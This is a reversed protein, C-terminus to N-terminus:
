ARDSPRRGRLLWVTPWTLFIAALGLAGYGAPRRASASLVPKGGSRKAAPSRVASGATTPVSAPLSSVAFGAAAADGLYHPAPERDGSIRLRLTLPVDGSTFSAVQPHVSVKVYYWGAVAASNVRSDSSLRNDYLVRPTQATIAAAHGAYSLSQGTVYGRAPSFLALDVGDAALGGARTVTTGGFDATVSLRQGWYLPVRYYRTQGAPVRDTYVGTGPLRTGSGDMGPEGAVPVPLGTPPAPDAPAYTPVAPAGPPPAGLAPEVMYRVDLPWVDDSSSATSKREVQLLYTGAAQCVDAAAGPRRVAGGVPATANVGTVDADYSDCLTGGPTMLRLTLGAFLGVTSGPRPVAFASLYTTAPEAVSGGTEQTSGLRVAYFRSAGKAITDRYTHGPTLLPAGVRSTAGTIPRGDPAWAAGPGPTTARATGPLACAAALVAAATGRVGARLVVGAGGRM